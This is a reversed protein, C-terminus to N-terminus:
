SASVVVCCSPSRRAIRAASQVRVPTPTRHLRERGRAHPSRTWTYAIGNDRLPNRRNLRDLVKGLHSDNRPVGGRATPRATWRSMAMRKEGVGGSPRRVPRAAVFLHQIRSRRAQRMRTAAVRADVCWPARSRIGAQLASKELEADISARTACGNNM